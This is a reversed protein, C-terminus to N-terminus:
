KEDGGFKKNILKWRNLEKLSVLRINLLLTNLFLYEEKETQFSFGRWKKIEETKTKM